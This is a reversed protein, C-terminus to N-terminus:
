SSARAWGRTECRRDDIFAECSVEILGRIAPLNIVAASPTANLPRLLVKGHEMYGFVPYPASLKRTLQVSRLLSDPVPMAFAALPQNLLEADSTFIEMGPLGGM